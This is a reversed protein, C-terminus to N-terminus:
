VLTTKKKNKGGTEVVVPTVLSITNKYGARGAPLAKIPPGPMPATVAGDMKKTPRTSKSAGNAMNEFLHDTPRSHYIIKNYPCIM